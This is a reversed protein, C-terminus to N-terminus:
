YVSDPGTEPGHEEALEEPVENAPDHSIRSSNLANESNGRTSLVTYKSANFVM